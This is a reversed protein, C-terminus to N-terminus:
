TSIVIYADTKSKNTVMFYCRGDDDIRRGFTMAKGWDKFDPCNAIKSLVGSGFDNDKELRMERILRNIEEASTRFYYTDIHCGLGGGTFRYCLDESEKPLVTKTFGEFRSEPTHQNMLSSVLSFVVSLVFSSVVCIARFRKM